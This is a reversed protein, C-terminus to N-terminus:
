ETGYLRAIDGYSTVLGKSIMQDIEIIEAYCAKETPCEVVTGKPLQAGTKPATTPMSYVKCGDHEERPVIELEFMEAFIHLDPMCKEPVVWDDGGEPNENALFFYGEPQAMAEALLENMEEPSLRSQEDNKSSAVEALDDDGFIYFPWTLGYWIAYFHTSTAFLSEFGMVRWARYQGYGFGVVLYLIM